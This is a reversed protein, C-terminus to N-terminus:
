LRPDSPTQQHVIRGEEQQALALQQRPEFVRAGRDEPYVHCESTRAEASRASPLVHRCDPIVLALRPFTM